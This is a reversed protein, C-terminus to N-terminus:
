ALASAGHEPASSGITPADSMTSVMNVRHQSNSSPSPLIGSHNWSNPATTRSGSSALKHGRPYGYIKFCRSVTHGFLGCHTCQPKSKNQPRSGTGHAQSHFAVSDSPSTVLRQQEEQSILNYAKTINPLPEMMLIQRRAPTFSENLRMLFRVVNRLDYFEEWRKVLNCSCGNCTCTPFPEHNKLEEWLGTLKTFYANLDLSGQHLGDIKQQINYIKSVNKQKFRNELSVWVDHANDLYIILSSIDASVSNNIWTCVLDNCRSWLGFDAADHSPQSLSGDVFGLKNKANLAKLMSRSWVNFNSEGILKETNLSTSSTDAAHLYLPSSYPDSPLSIMPTPTPTSLDSSSDTSASSM